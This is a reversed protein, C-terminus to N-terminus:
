KRASVTAGAFISMSGGEPAAIRCVGSEVWQSRRLLQGSAVLAGSAFGLGWGFPSGCVMLRELRELMSRVPVAWAKRRSSSSKKSRGKSPSSGTGTSRQKSSPESPDRQVGAVPGRGQAEILLDEFADLPIQLRHGRQVEAALGERRRREFRADMRTYVGGVRDEGGLCGPERRHRRVLGEVLLRAEENMVQLLQDQGGESLVARLYGVEAEGRRFPRGEGFRLLLRCHGLPFCGAECALGQAGLGLEGDRSRRRLRGRGSRAKTWRAGLSRSRTRDATCNPVAGPVSARLVKVVLLPSVIVVFLLVCVCPVSWCTM